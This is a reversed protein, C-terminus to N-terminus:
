KKFIEYIVIVFGPANAVREFIFYKFDWKKLAENLEKKYEISKFLILKYIKTHLLQLLKEIKDVGRIIATDINPIHLVSNFAMAGAINKLFFLKSQNREIFIINLGLLFLPIGIVGGGAGFDVITKENKLLDFISLGELVHWNWIDQVTNKAVLDLGNWEKILSIYNEIKEKQLFTLKFDVDNIQKVLM